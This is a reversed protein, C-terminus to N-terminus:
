KWDNVLSDIMAPYPIEHNIYINEWIYDDEARVKFFVRYYGTELTQSNINVSQTFNDFSETLIQNDAIELDSYSLSNLKQDFNEDPYDTNKTGKKIVFSAIGNTASITFVDDAPNPYLAFVGPKSNPNGVLGIPAGSFDTMNIGTVWEINVSENGVAPDEEKDKCSIFCFGIAIIFISLKIKM